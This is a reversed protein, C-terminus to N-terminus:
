EEIIEDADELSEEVMAATITDVLRYDALERRGRLRAL